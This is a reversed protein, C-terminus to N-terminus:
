PSRVLGARQKLGRWLRRQKKWSPRLTIPQVHQVNIPDRGNQTLPLFLIEEQIDPALSLLNMIQSIRARSVRGLRALDAHNGITGARILNDVKIALALLRALRPVRGKPVEMEVDKRHRRRQQLTATVPYTITLPNTM